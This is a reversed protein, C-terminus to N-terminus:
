FFKNHSWRERKLARGRRQQRRILVWEDWVENYSREDSICITSHQNKEERKSISRRFRDL